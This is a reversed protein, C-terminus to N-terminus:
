PREFRKVAAIFVTAAAEKQIPVDQAAFEPSLTIKNFIHLYLDTYQEGWKIMAEKTNAPATSGYGQGNTVTAPTTSMPAGPAPAAYGGKVNWYNGSQEVNITGGPVAGTFHSPFGWAKVEGVGPVNVQANQKDKGDKQYPADIKVITAISAM